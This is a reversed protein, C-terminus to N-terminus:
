VLAGFVGWHAKKWYCDVNSFGAAQLWTFHDFLSDYHDYQAAHAQWADLDAPTAGQATAWTMWQARDIGHATAEPRTMVADACLFQGGPALWPRIRAYLLAKQGSELHHLALSSVVLNVPADPSFTMFDSQVPHVPGAKAATAALMEASLDVVTIAAQPYRQRLLRTVNGTGCGLELISVPNEVLVYTILAQLLESYVPVASLIGRDYDPSLEDFFRQLDLMDM